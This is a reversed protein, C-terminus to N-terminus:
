RDDVSLQEAVDDFTVLVVSRRAADAGVQEDEGRVTWGECHQVEVVMNSLADVGSLVSIAAPGANFLRSFAARALGNRQYGVMDAFATNSFLISGERTMALWPVPVRELVVVAPLRTLIDTPSTGPVTTADGSSGGIAM